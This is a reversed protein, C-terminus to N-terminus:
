AHTPETSYSYPLRTPNPSGDRRASIILSGAIERVGPLWELTQGLGQVMPILMRPVAPHLFDFPEVNVDVFGASVLQSALKGRFFATEEPSEGAWRRFLPVKRQLAIQPNMMNPEAFAIRGGERLVRHIEALARELHLHHLVSSGIVVDFLGDAFSLGEADDVRFSVRGGEHRERARDLLAESVDVAEIRCGTQAFSRTFLGTGCGLELAYSDSVIEAASIILEARRKARLQGAPSSWNWIEEAQDAIQAGHEVEGARVM